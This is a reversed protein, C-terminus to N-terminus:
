LLIRDTVQARGARSLIKELFEKPATANFKRGSDLWKPDIEVTARTYTCCM